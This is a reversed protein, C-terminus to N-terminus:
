PARHVREDLLAVQQEVSRLREYLEVSPDYDMGDAFPELHEIFRKWLQKVRTVLTM